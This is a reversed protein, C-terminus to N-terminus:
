SVFPQFKSFFKKGVGIRHTNCSLVATEQVKTTCRRGLLKNLDCVTFEIIFESHLMIYASVM